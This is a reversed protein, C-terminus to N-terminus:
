VEDAAIVRHGAAKILRNMIAYGMDGEEFSESYIYDAGIDDCKRLLAYLGASVTIENKKSGADYVHECCYLSLNDTDALVATKYGAANKEAALKEIKRAVKEREGTIITLEGKPAYHTYKMGPAKPRLKTDMGAIAPDITVDGLIDKIMEPSIFGPRLITPREGTVDVITSEIGIGVAGGDLVMDIRGDMDQMVHAATTPSPRGSLNASPAAILVGSEKILKLAAPHAPMRIAVTDLGGTTTDPVIEKKKFIITLPGPWFAEMLKQAQEPVEAALEYVSETEAIHVILPNDSPRGKARYIKEAADAKLADGGLGYVTETPFAVLGGSRLIESATKFVQSDEPNAIAEITKMKNNGIINQNCGNENVNYGRISTKVVPNKPMCDIRKRVNIFCILRM